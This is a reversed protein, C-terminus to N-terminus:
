VQAPTGGARLIGVALSLDGIRTIRHTRLVESLSAAAPGDAVPPKLNQYNWTAYDNLGYDSVRALGKMLVVSFDSVVVNVPGRVRALVESVLTPGPVLAAPGRQRWAWWLNGALLLLNVALVAALFHKWPARRKEPQTRVPPQEPVRHFVPAFGGKPIEVRWEEVSGETEFYEHLKLRLQRAAGRVISDESPIYDEGRSFLKRGISIETIEEPHGALSRATVFELLERLRAAKSLARSHLIRQILQYRPDNELGAPIAAPPGMENIGNGKMQTLLM